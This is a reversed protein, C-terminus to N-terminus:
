FYLWWMKAGNKNIELTPSPIKIFGFPGLATRIWQKKIPIKALDIDFSFYYQRYRKFEDCLPNNICFDADTTGSIMEEAGYGLALNLWAPFNSDRLFLSKINLSMWYTQGNYDKLLREVTSKGLVNPRYTAFETLHASYKIKVRQENWFYTQASATVFGLTNAAMDGWSFGWEQSTGDLLELGTLYILGVSGGIWAAKKQSLGTWKFSEIGLQGLYNATMFHGVKDMQLWEANDNFTHFKSQPYPKYWVENLAIFSGITITSESIIISSLRKKNLSDSYAFISSQSFAKSAQWCFLIIGYLAIKKV